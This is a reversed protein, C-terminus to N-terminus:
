RNIPHDPDASVPLPPIDVRLWHYAGMPTPGVREVLDECVDVLGRDYLAELCHHLAERSKMPYGSLAMTGAVDEFNYWRGRPLVALTRRYPEMLPVRKLHDFIAQPMEYVHRREARAPRNMAAVNHEITGFGGFPNMPLPILEIPKDNRFWTGNVYAWRLLAAHRLVVVDTANVELVVSESRGNGIQMGDALLSRHDIYM